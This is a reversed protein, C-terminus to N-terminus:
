LAECLFAGQALRANGGSGFLWLGSKEKSYYTQVFFGVLVLWTASM